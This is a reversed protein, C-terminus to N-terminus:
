MLHSSKLEKLMQLRVDLACHVAKLIQSIKYYDTNNRLFWVLRGKLHRCESQILEVAEDNMISIVKKSELEVVLAVGKYIALRKYKLSKYLHCSKM